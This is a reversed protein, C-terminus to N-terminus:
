VLKDVGIEAFIRGGETDVWTISSGMFESIAIELFKARGVKFFCNMNEHVYISYPASFGIIVSKNTVQVFGSRRLTGTDKPCLEIARGLIARGLMELAMGTAVSNRSGVSGLDIERLINGYEGLWDRAIKLDEVLVDTVKIVSGDFVDTVVDVRKFLNNDKLISIDKISSELKLIDKSKNSDTKSIQKIYQLNNVIDYYGSSEANFSKQLLELVKDVGKYVVDQKNKGM